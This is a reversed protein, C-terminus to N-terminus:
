WPAACIGGYSRWEHFCQSRLADSGGQQTFASYVGNMNGEQIATAVIQYGGNGADDGIIVDFGYANGRDVSWDDPYLEAFAAVRNDGIEHIVDTIYKKAIDSNYEWLDEEWLQLHSNSSGIGMYGDPFDFVFGDLLM